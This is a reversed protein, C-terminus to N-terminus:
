CMGREIDSNALDGVRDYLQLLGDVGSDTTSVGSLGRPDYIMWVSWWSDKTHVKDESMHVRFSKEIAWGDWSQELGLM